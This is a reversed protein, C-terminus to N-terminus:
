EKKQLGCWYKGAPCAVEEVGASTERKIKFPHSEKKQKVGCLTMCQKFKDPSINQSTDTQYALRLETSGIQYRKDNADKNSHYNANFWEKIQNNEDMYEESSAVVTDPATLGTERIQHHAELLLHFMEDRWQPSKIIKDKLDENIKKHTPETPTSVFKFPFELVEMRRQIGGDARNLKPIANTQLFLGFQPRFTVTSQHLDRATIEDGGSM